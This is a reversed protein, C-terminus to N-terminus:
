LSTKVNRLQRLFTDMDPTRLEPNPHMAAMITGAL